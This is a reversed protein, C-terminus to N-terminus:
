INTKEWAVAKPYDKFLRERRRFERSHMVNRGNKKEIGMDAHLMEHYVIFEIFYCPVTKRDLLSNIRITNTHSSYSGLTRKRQARGHYKAGWTICASVRGEFYDRNLSEYIQMLNYRRGNTEMKIKKPPSKKLCGSHESIFKRLLPTGGKGRKIFEAIEELMDMDANLLMRHLRVHVTGEKRRVSLISTSNDTLALSVPSCASNRFYDAVFGEDHSFNLKLQADKM